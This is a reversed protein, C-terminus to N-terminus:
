HIFDINTIAFPSVYTCKTNTSSMGNIVIVHNEPIIRHIVVHNHSVIEYWQENDRLDAGITYTIILAAFAGLVCPITGYLIPLSKAIIGYILILEGLFTLAFTLFLGRNKLEHNNAIVAFFRGIDLNYTSLISDEEKHYERTNAITFKINNCKFQLM